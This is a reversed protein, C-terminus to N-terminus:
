QAGQPHFHDRVLNFEHVAINRVYCRHDLLEESFGRYRENADAHRSLMIFGTEGDPRTTGVVALTENAMDNRAISDGHALFAIPNDTTLEEENLRRARYRHHILHFGLDSWATHIESDHAKLALLVDPRICDIHIHFQNQTRGHKSNIALGIYDRPLLAGIRREIIHRANWAGEWYRSFSPTIAQQSEIGAIHQTPVLLLHTPSRWVGLIAYGREMSVQVCPFPVRRWKTDTVCLNHVTFWLAHPKLVIVIFTGSILVSLAAISVIVPSRLLRIHIRPTASVM